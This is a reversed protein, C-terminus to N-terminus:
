EIDFGDKYFFLLPPILLNMGKGITITRFHVYYHSRHPYKSM